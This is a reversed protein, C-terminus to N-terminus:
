PCIAWKKSFYSTRFCFTQYENETLENKKVKKLRELWQSFTDDASSIDIGKDIKNRLELEKKKLESVSKAYIYKYKGNEADYIKTQYRGDSRKKYQAM